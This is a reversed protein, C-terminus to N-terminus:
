RAPDEGMTRRRLRIAGTATADVPRGRQTVELWGARELAWAVARAPAMLDGWDDGGIARAAESPCISRGPARSRLLARLVAALRAETALRRSSPPGRLAIDADIWRARASGIREPTADAASATASCAAAAAELEARLSADFPAAAPRRAAADNGDARDSPALVSM